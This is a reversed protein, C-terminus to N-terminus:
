RYQAGFTHGCSLCRYNDLLSDDLAGGVASGAVSGAASGLLGAIVAGTLGGFVAGLPGGIAGVAAGAEAGSLAMAVGSTAGAVCGLTSGAKRGVNLADVRSSGCQPCARTESSSQLAETAWAPAYSFHDPETATTASTRSEAPPSPPGDLTESRAPSDFRRQYAEPEFPEGNDPFPYPSRRTPYDSTQSPPPAHRVAHLAHDPYPAQAEWEDITPDFLEYQIPPAVTSPTPSTPAPTPPAHRKLFLVVGTCVLILVAVNGVAFALTPHM